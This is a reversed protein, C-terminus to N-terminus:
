NDSTKSGIVQIWKRLIFRVNERATEDAQDYARAVRVAEASLSQLSSLDPNDTQGTLYEVTTGLRGACIEIEEDTPSSNGLRWQSIKNRYTNMERALYAHSVGRESALEIIRAAATKAYKEM